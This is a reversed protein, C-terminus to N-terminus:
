VPASEPPVNLYELLQMAAQYEEERYLKKFLAAAKQCDAIAAPINDM